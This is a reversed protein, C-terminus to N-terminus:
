KEGQLGQQPKLFPYNVDNIKFGEGPQLANPPPVSEITNTTVLGSQAFLTVIRRDGKLTPLGSAGPYFGGDSAPTVVNGGADTGLASSPMPLNFKYTSTPTNPVTGVPYVDERNTLWFHLFPVSSASTPASYETTPIYLGTPNLMVDCYLSGRSVPIRSRERTSDWTTADIVMGAPLMVERAGQSPVPRRQITYAIDQFGKDNNATAWEASPSNTDATDVPQDSLPVAALSGLWRESEWEFPEDVLLNDTPKSTGSSYPPEPPNNNTGDFGEDVWGDKDDDDANVLFLFQPTGQVSGGGALYYTRVLPPTTGPPGVNVFMETNGQNAGTAWPNVTCPGVVTYSRGAGGIKIKDGVRITWYWNTPEMPQGTTVFGGFYLSEEVMLVDPITPLAPRAPSAPFPYRVTPVSPMDPYAYFPPFNPSAAAARAQVQPSITIRGASYDGAPEIPIFRNYVLQTTGAGVVGPAPITLVPDPLLRIGRAENYRIASDRAGVLGGTFIRAADTVQRGSLSSYLVPLAVLSALLIIAIVVLLEVLTFGRRVHKM